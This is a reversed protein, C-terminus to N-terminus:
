PMESSKTLDVLASSATDPVLYVPSDKTTLGLFRAPHLKVDELRTLGRLSGDPAIRALATTQPKSSDKPYLHVQVVIDQNADVSFTGPIAGRADNRKSVDSLANALSVRSLLDGDLSFTLWETTASVYLFLKGHSIFMQSAGHSASSDVVADKTPFLSTSLFEKVIDGDPSYKVLLPYIHSSSDKDGFAFVNGSADAAVLQHHYPKVDWVARLTGSKDYTLLLSKVPAATKRPGYAMIAAIVVDGNPATAADWVDAYEAGPFDRLPYLALEKAGADIVRIAPLSAEDVDRSCLIQQLGADWKVWYGGAKDAPSTKVDFRIQQSTATGAGLLAFILAIAGTKLKRM